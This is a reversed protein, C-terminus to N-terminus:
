LVRRNRYADMITEFKSAEARLHSFLQDDEFAKAAFAMSLIARYFYNMADTAHVATKSGGFKGGIDFRPPDGGCMDM